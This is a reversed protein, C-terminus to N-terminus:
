HYDGRVVCWPLPPNQIYQRDPEWATFLSVPSAVLLPNPRALSLSIFRVRFFGFACRRCCANGKKLLTSLCLLRFLCSVYTGKVQGVNTDKVQGVNSGNVQGVNTGNVQGVNTGKVQGVNTDKGQGLFYISLKVQM